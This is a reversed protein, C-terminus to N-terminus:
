DRINVNSNIYFDTPYLAHQLVDSELVLDNNRGVYKILRRNFTLESRSIVIVVERSDCRFLVGALMCNNANALIHFSANAKGPYNM